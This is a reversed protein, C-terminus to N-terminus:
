TIAAPCGSANCKCQMLNESKKLIFLFVINNCFTKWFNIPLSQIRKVECLKDFISFNKVSQWQDELIYVIHKVEYNWHLYLRLSMKPSLLLNLLLIINEHDGVYCSINLINQWIHFNTCIHFHKSFNLSKQQYCASSEGFKVVSEM